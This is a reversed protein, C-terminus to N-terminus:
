HAHVEGDYVSDSPVEIKKKNPPFDPLTFYRYFDLSSSIYVLLWGTYIIGTFLTPFQGLSFEHLYYGWFFGVKCPVSRVLKFCNFYMTCAERTSCHRCGRAVYDSSYGQTLPMEGPKEKRRREDKTIYNKGALENCERSRSLPSRVLRFVDGKPPAPASRDWIAATRWNKGNV